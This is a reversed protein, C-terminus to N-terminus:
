WDIAVVKFGESGFVYLYNDILVARKVNNDGAFDLNLLEILNYNNFGLLIYRGAMAKNYDNAGFGILKNERDIFYSKYETSYSGSPIEYSCVSIVGDKSEEYIEIKVSSWSNDRGIGLLYGNGFNVLSSSFGEITGTDKYTINGLDSLDFFFVPDSLQISTCVYAADKDFRVSQVIEGQPAFQLVSAVIEGSEVDICYLNANTGSTADFIHQSYANFGDIVEKMKSVNTTTVVRLIGNYEDLSYQDKIYGEVVFSGKPALGESYSLRSIETMSKTTTIDGEVEKEAYSRTAYISDNSVYIEGSYSLFAAAGELELTDEDLKCAVTYRSDTLNEPLVINEPLISEFGEGRDIQPLFSSEDSFDPNMGVYFNGVVLLKGDVMRSSIPEGAMCFRAKETINAPDTVDLSIIEVYSGSKALTPMIITLTTCDASLYMERSSYGFCYADDVAKEYITYKGVVESNEGAISYVNITEERLYYIFRDSRKILDGEIVGEVQNDTVEKYSGAGGTGDTILDGASETIPAMDAGNM